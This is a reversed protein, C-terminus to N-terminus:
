QACGHSIRNEVPPVCEDVLQELSVFFAQIRVSNLLQAEVVDVNGIDRHLWLASLGSSQLCEPLLGIDIQRSAHVENWASVDEGPLYGYM